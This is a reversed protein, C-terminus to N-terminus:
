FNNISKIQTNYKSSKMNLKTLLLAIEEDDTFKKLDDKNKFKIVIIMSNKPTAMTKVM